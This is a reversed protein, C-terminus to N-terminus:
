VYPTTPLTLHTYSVAIHNELCLRETLNQEEKGSIIELPIIQDTFNYMASDFFHLFGGPLFRIAIYNIGGKLIAFIPKTMTGVISAIGRYSHENLDFIIDACGDPVVRHLIPEELDRESTMIWYCSIYPKLHKGPAYERYHTSNCKETSESMSHFARHGTLSIHEM